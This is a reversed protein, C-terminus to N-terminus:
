NAGLGAREVSFYTQYGLAPTFMHHVENVYYSGNFLTGVGDLTVQAGVRLRGDGEAVGRGSVFRRAAKRYYAEALTRAEEASAPALHVVTERRQGFNSELIQSGSTGANLEAQIAATSVETELAEKASVDWGSVALHTRQHALDALVSFERLRQRFRLSLENTQRRSRAQAHLTHDEIWVEADVERARERIFALDSQNMQALVRYTPSELDIQTQLGHEGAIDGIVDNVTVDEFTRTRRVMRLDQLRDEALILIEPPRNQTYRGEIGTIVGTFIQAAADGDGIEISIAHGFDFIERGFYLYGVDDSNSGWNGVTVECRYIGDDCEHVSLSITGESLRENERGQIMIKPRASYLPVTPTLNSM